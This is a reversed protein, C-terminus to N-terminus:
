KTNGRSIKRRLRRYLSQNKAIRRTDGRVRAVIKDELMASARNVHGEIRVLNVLEQESHNMIYGIGFVGNQIDNRLFRNRIVTIARAQERVGAHVSNGADSEKVTPRQHYYMLAIDSIVQEVDYRLMLRIGFDWDESTLLGEDYGNLEDYVSRKYMIAGNSLYNRHAQKFLSVEGCWSEPHPVREIEVISGKDDVDEIVIEMPVVSASADRSRMTELGISLRDKHWADDDDLICVYESKSARIAQNLAKSLGASQKNHIVLRRSDPYKALAQEVDAKNGGDNLIVHVFSGFSQGLVSKLARELFLPRNKTRTIIAVEPIDVSSNTM